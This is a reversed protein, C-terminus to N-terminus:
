RLRTVKRTKVFGPTEIRYLYVGSAASRGLDSRGNWVVDHRGADVVEDVLTRVLQGAVNYVRLSVPAKEPLSFRISTASRFPSPNAFGLSTQGAAVVSPVDVGGGSSPVYGSATLGFENTLIAFLFDARCVDSLLASACFGAVVGVGSSANRVSKLIAPRGDDLAQGREFTALVTSTRNPDAPALTLRDLTRNGPCRAFVGCMLGSFATGAVGEVNLAAAGVQDPASAVAGFYDALFDTAAAGSAPGGLQSAVDDGMLLVHGGAEIYAAIAARGDDSVTSLSLDGTLWIVADYVPVGAEVLGGLGAGPLAFGRPERGQEGRRESVDYIDWGPVSEPEALGYVLGLGREVMDEPEDFVPDLITETVPDYTGSNEFDVLTGGFDDVILIRDGFGNDRLHPLTEFDLYDGSEADPPFFALNALNDEARVYYEVIQGAQWILGDGSDTQDELGGDDAGITAVYTGEDTGTSGVSVSLDMAKSQWAGFVPPAGSGVRWHMRVNAASIGFSSTISIRFKEGDVVSGTGEASNSRTSNHAPDSLAFTDSFLDEPFASFRTGAGDFSGVSVNDILYQTGGHNGWALDTPTSLDLVEFAVQLSDVDTGLFETVELARDMAWGAGGGVDAYGDPDLWQGWGENVDYARVLQNTADLNEAPASVYESYAVVGGTWGDVDIVPSVLLASFGNSSLDSGEPKAAWMWDDSFTCTNGKSDYDPDFELHWPDYPMQDDWSHRSEHTWSSPNAINAPWTSDGGAGEFCFVDEPSLGDWRDIEDLPGCPNSSPHVELWGISREFNFDSPAWEQLGDSVTDQHLAMVPQGSRPAIGEERAEEVAFPCPVCTGPVVGAGAPFPVPTNITVAVFPGVPTPAYGIGYYTGARWEDLGWRLSFFVDPFGTAPNECFCGDEIRLSTGAPTSNSAALFFRDRFADGRTMGRVNVGFPASWVVPALGVRTFFAFYLTVTPGTELGNCGGALRYVTYANGTGGGCQAHAVPAAPLLFFGFILPALLAGLVVRPLRSFPPM